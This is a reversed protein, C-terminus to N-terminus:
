CDHTTENGKHTAQSHALREEAPALDSCNSQIDTQQLGAVCKAFRVPNNGFALGYLRGNDNQLILEVVRTRQAPDQCRVAVPMILCSYTEM